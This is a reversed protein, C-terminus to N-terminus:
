RRRSVNRRRRTHSTCGLAYINVMTEEEFSMLLLGGVSPKCTEIGELPGDPSGTAGTENESEISAQDKNRHQAVNNAKDARFQAPEERGILVDPEM